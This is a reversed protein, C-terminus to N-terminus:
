ISPVRFTNSSLVNSLFYMGHCLYLFSESDVLLCAQAVLEEASLLDGNQLSLIGRVLNYVAMWMKWSNGGNKVCQEFNLDIVNSSIQLQYRSEVLKLCVWGIYCDTKLDLCRAYEKQLSLLDGKMAHARCLMLHAFFIYDDPLAIVAAKKAHNLCTLHDGSQLSIESACLLLQFLQYQYSVEAKCYLENSLAVSILRSIIVCLHHPFKEERARQLYNLVLLYRANHNWPKQHFCRYNLLLSPSIVITNFSHITFPSM